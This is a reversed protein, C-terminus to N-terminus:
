ALKGQSTFQPKTVVHSQNNIRSGLRDTCAHIIGTLLETRIMDQARILKPLDAWKLLSADWDIEQVCERDNHDFSILWRRNKMSPASLEAEMANFANIYAEKWKAAEKGTFGMCLFSFGDRTMISTRFSRTTGKGSEVERSSETFNRLRFEASCELSDIARLVADHRKGFHEAVQTSTTTIKGNVIAVSPNTTVTNMALSRTHSTLGCESSRLRLLAAIRTSIGTCPVPAASAAGCRRGFQTRTNVFTFIAANSAARGGIVRATLSSQLHTATCSSYDRISARTLRFTMGVPDAQGLGAEIGKFASISFQTIEDTTPTPIEQM